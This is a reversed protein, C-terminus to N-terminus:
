CYIGINKLFPDFTKENRLQIKGSMGGMALALFYFSELIMDAYIGKQWYLFANLCTAFLSTLWAKSDLRIFYYTSLLSIIAGLIDLLM